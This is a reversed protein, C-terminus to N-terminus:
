GLEAALSAAEAVMAETTTRWAPDWLRVYLMTNRVFEVLEYLRARRLREPPVSESGRYGDLFCAQAEALGDRGTALYAWRIDALLRGLDLAPEAGGCADFDILTVPARPSVLVHEAKLDGHAFVPPESSLRGGTEEVTELLRRVGSAAV